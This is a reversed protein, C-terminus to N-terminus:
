NSILWDRTSIPIFQMEGFALFLFFSYILM